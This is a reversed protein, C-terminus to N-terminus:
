QFPFTFYASMPPAKANFTKQVNEWVGFGETDRLTVFSETTTTTQKSLPKTYISTARADDAAGRHVRYDAIDGTFYSGDIKRGIYKMNRKVNAPYPKDAFTKKRIGNIYLNWTGNPLLTWVVHYWANTLNKAIMDSVSTDVACYLGGASLEMRISDQATGNGFEFFAGNTEATYFWFAITLGDDPVYLCDDITVFQNDKFTVKAVNIQINKDSLAITEDSTALSTQKYMNIMNAKNATKMHCLSREYQIQLEDTMTAVKAVETQLDSESTNLRAITKHTSAVEKNINSVYTIAQFPDASLDKKFKQVMQQTTNLQDNFSVLESNLTNAKTEIANVLENANSKVTSNEMDDPAKELQTKLSAAMAMGENYHNNLAQIRHRATELAKNYKELIPAFKDYLRVQQTKHNLIRFGEMNAFGELGRTDLEDARDEYLQLVEGPSRINEELQMRHLKYNAVSSAHVQGIEIYANDVNEVPFPPASWDYQAKFAGNLYVSYRAVTFVVTVFVPTYQPLQLPELTQENPSNVTSHIIHLKDDVLRLAPAKDTSEPEVVRFVNQAQDHIGDLHIWFSLTMDTNKNGQEIANTRWDLDKWDIRLSREPLQEKGNWWSDNLTNFTQQHRFLDSEATIEVLTQFSEYQRYGYYLFLGIFIFILVVLIAKIM